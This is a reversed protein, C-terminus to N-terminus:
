ILGELMMALVFAHGMKREECHLVDALSMGLSVHDYGDFDWFAVEGYEAYHEQMM